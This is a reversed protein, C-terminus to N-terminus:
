GRQPIERNILQWCQSTPLSLSYHHSWVEHAVWCYQRAEMLVWIGGLPMGQWSKRERVGEPKRMRPNNELGQM